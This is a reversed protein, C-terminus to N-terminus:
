LISAWNTNKSQFSHLFLFPHYAMLYLINGWTKSKFYKSHQSKEIWWWINIWINPEIIRLDADKINRQEHIRSIDWRGPRLSVSCYAMCKWNWRGVSCLMISQWFTNKAFIHWIFLILSIHIPIKRNIVACFTKKQLVKNWWKKKNIKYLLM